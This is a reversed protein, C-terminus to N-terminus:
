ALAFVGLTRDDYAMVNEVPLNATILERIRELQGPSTHVHWCGADIREVRANFASLLIKLSRTM